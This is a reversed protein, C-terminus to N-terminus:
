KPCNKTTSHYFKNLSNTLKTKKSDLLDTYAKVKHDKLGQWALAEYFDDPLPNTGNDTLYNYDGILINKHFHKLADRMSNVYLKAMTEHQPTAKFNGKEFSEYATKFVLDKQKNKSFLKEIMDAHIYEHIITRVASLAPENSLRSKSISITILKNDTSYNTLGNVEDGNFFVKNKSKLNIDFETKAGQFKNLINKIYSNGKKTLSDNLCREKGTLENIIQDDFDINSLSLLPNTFLALFSEYAFSKANEFKNNNTLAFKQLYSTITDKVIVNKNTSNKM